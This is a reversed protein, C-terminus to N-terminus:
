THSSNLRTSKRDLHLGAAAIACLFFFALFPVTGLRRAVVPGFALLWLCNVGVHTYDGHLFVYSVFSLGLSLLDGTSWGQAAALAYNAPILAYQEVIRDPWDGPLSVRAVHAALFIAILWLVSAPANLFPQRAQPDEEFFAM